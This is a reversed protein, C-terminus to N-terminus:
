TPATALIKAITEQLSADNRRTDNEKTTVEIERKWPYDMEPIVLLEAERRRDVAMKALNRSSYTKSNPSLLTALTLHVPLLTSTPSPHRGGSM